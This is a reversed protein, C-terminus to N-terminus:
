AAREEEDAADDVMVNAAPAARPMCAGCSRSRNAALRAERAKKRAEALDAVVKDATGRYLEDPTSGRFSSHPTTNHAKVYFRVLREVAGISDLENLYLWGHRLSRWFAEIKSNSFTVEVLALIRNLVSTAFFQDVTGNV